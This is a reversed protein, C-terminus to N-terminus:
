TGTKVNCSCCCTKSIRGRSYICDTVTLPHDSSSHYIRETPAMCLVPPYAMGSATGREIRTAGGVVGRGSCYHLSAAM